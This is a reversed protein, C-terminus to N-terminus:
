RGSYRQSSPSFIAAVMGTKLSRTSTDVSGGRGAAERTSTDEPSWEESAVQSPLPLGRRRPLAVDEMVEGVVVICTRVRDPLQSARGPDGCSRLPGEFFCLRTTGFLPLDASIARILAGAEGGGDLAPGAAHEGAGLFM